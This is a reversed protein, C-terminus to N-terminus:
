IRYKSRDKRGNGRNAGKTTPELSHCNPCVLELNEEKNNSFDGDLHSIELPINGTYPNIESWSCKCCKGKYKEHLYRRLYNSTQYKGKLGTEEGQKWREIYTKYQYECQCTASCYVKQKKGLECGCNKCMIFIEQCDIM